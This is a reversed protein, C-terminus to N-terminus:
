NKDQRLGNLAAYLALYDSRPLLNRFASANSILLAVVDDLTASFPHDSLQYSFYEPFSVKVLGIENLCEVYGCSLRVSSIGSVDFFKGDKEYRLYM